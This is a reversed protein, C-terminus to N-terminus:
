TLGLVSKANAILTSPFERSELERLVMDVLEEWDESAAEVLLGDIEQKSAYWASCRQALLRKDNLQLAKITKEAREREAQALTSVVAARMGYNGSQVFTIYLRPDEEHPNIIDTTVYQKQKDKYFGCTNKDLCSLILNEWDFIKEPHRAQQYFHDLHAANKPLQGKEDTLKCECYGCLGGQEVAKHQRLEHGEESASYEGFTFGKIKADSLSKPILEHQIPIHRM